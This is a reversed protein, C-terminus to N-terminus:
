VAVVPYELWRRGDLVAHAGGRKKTEGGWQKFFFAAGSALCRDRLERVWDPQMPRAGPGSEGGGVVWDIDDLQLDALSGLLPEASIWRIEAQTERLMKARWAYAINEVSVGLWIHEPCSNARYRRNIYRKMREARKTLVQFTHRENSEMELFVLDIFDNSVDKHFLDSMSNVFIRRSSKWRSPQGLRDEHLMVEDFPHGYRPSRPNHVQRVDVLRKAYCRDCGPSVQTCGTAPNWSNETWEIASKGAMAERGKILTMECHAM